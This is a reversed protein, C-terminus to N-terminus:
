SKYRELLRKVARRVLESTSVGLARAAKILDQRLQADLKIVITRYPKTVARNLLRRVAYIVLESVLVGKAVALRLLAELMEQEIKVTLMVYQRRGEEVYIHLPPLKKRNCVVVYVPKRGSYVPGGYTLALLGNIFFKVATDKPDLSIYRSFIKAATKNDALIKLAKRPTVFRVGAACLAAHLTRRLRYLHKLASSRCCWMSVRDIPIHVARGVSALYKLTYKAQSWTFGMAVVDRTLVCGRIRLMHAVNEARIKLKRSRPM